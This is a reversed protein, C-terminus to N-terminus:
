RGISPSAPGEVLRGATRTRGLPLGAPDAPCGSPTSSTTRRASASTATAPAGSCCATPSPRAPSARAAARRLEVAGGRDGGNLAYMYGQPDLSCGFVVGNATTVPGSTGGGHPPRADAVADAGTSPTSGAGCAAPRRRAAPLTWPVSTATPTPRTSARATSPRAGSCAAPRAAPGPRPSGSVAGTDPDLAWYQGSKQGAGVLDLPKGNGDKVHVAGAGPRLRLRPRGAGPLQDGDGIFPICDVTWADFPIAQTAWRIAGTKLDLAMISDFHDDAPLCAAQGVPDGGAGRRLRAGIPPVSYNNGTAIYVQGRKTDIAPSSGWVANGTYGAPAM